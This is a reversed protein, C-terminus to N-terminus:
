FLQEAEMQTKNADVTVDGTAGDVSLLFTSNDTIGSTNDFYANITYTENSGDAISITLGTFTITNDDSSYTGTVNSADTGNLRWVVKSFDGTGSTHVVIQSVDTSVGDSSGGDTLKFDFLDVAEAVTDNISPLNVPETVGAGATLTADADVNPTASGRLLTGDTKYLIDAGTNTYPYVTFFYETGKTLGTWSVTQTGAAVTQVGANDSCDTDTTPVAGHVIAILASSTSCLVLYSDPLVDNVADTWATTISTATPTVVFNTPQNTPVTKTASTTFSWSTTDTIGAFFNDASDKFATASIEIYYATSVTLTVSPDITIAAGSITVQTGTVDLTEIISNDSSAKILINGTGKVVDESLTLTLNTDTAINTADDAPLLTSLTPAATDTITITFAETFTGSHGDNTQVRVSYSGANLTTATQLTSGSLSFSANNGDGTGSVLTYTFSESTDADTTSLTGVTSIGKAVSTNSLAIDTPTDNISTSVVTTTNNPTSDSTGDNATITLTTTDTTGVTVKNTTPTFTIARLATQVSAITGTTISTESLSGKANNDLAISISLNDSEADALTISSFPTLAANDNVAQNATAGSITPANNNSPLSFKNAVVLSTSLSEAATM